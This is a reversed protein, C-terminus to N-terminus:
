RTHYIDDGGAITYVTGKRKARLKRASGRVTVRTVLQSRELRLLTIKEHLAEIKAQLAALKKAEAPRAFTLYQPNERFNSHM